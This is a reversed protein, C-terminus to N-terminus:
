LFADHSAAAGHYRGVSRKSRGDQRNITVEGQSHGQPYDTPRSFSRDMQFCDRFAVGQSFSPSWMMASWIAFASRTGPGSISSSTRSKSRSSQEPPSREPSDRRSDFARITKGSIRVATMEECPARNQTRQQALTAPQRRLHDFKIGDLASLWGKRFRNWRRNLALRDSRQNATTSESEAMSGPISMSTRRSIGSAAESARRMRDGSSICAKSSPIM